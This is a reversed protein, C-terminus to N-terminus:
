VGPTSLLPGTFLYKFVNFVAQLLLSDPMKKLQAALM